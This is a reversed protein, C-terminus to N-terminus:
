RFRFATRSTPNHRWELTPVVSPLAKVSFCSITSGLTTWVTQQKTQQWIIISIHLCQLHKKPLKAPLKHSLHRLVREYCSLSSWIRSVHNSHKSKQPFLIITSCCFLQDNRTTAGCDLTSINYTMQGASRNFLHSVISLNEFGQATCVFLALFRPRQSCDSSCIWLHLVYKRHHILYESALNLNTSQKVKLRCIERYLYRDTRFKLGTRSIITFWLRGCMRGYCHKRYACRLFSPQVLNPNVYFCFGACAREAPFWPSPSFFRLM